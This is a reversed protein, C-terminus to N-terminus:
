QCQKKEENTGRHKMQREIQRDDIWRKLASIM